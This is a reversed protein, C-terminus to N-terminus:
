HGDLSRIMIVSAGRILITGYRLSKRGNEMKVANFLLLNMHEDFSHLKGHYVEYERESVKVKVEIQSGVLKNLFECPRM